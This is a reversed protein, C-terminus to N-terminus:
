PEPRVRKGVLQGRTHTPYRLVCSVFVCILSECVCRLCDSARHRKRHLGEATEGDEHWVWDEPAVGCLPEWQFDESGVSGRGHFSVSWQRAMNTGPQPVAGNLDRMPGDLKRESGGSM